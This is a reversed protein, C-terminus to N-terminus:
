NEGVSYKKRCSLYNLKMFQHLEISLNKRVQPKNKSAELEQQTIQENDEQSLFTPSRALFYQHGRSGDFYHQQRNVCKDLEPQNRVWFDSYPKFYMNGENVDFHVGMVVFGAPLAYHGQMGNPEFWSPHIFFPAFLKAHSNNNDNHDLSRLQNISDVFYLPSLQNKPSRWWEVRLEGANSMRPLFTGATIEYWVGVRLGSGPLEEVPLFLMTPWNINKYALRKQLIAKSLKDDAYHSVLPVNLLELRITIHQKGPAM